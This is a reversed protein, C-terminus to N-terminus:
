AYASYGQRKKAPMALLWYYYDGRYDAVIFIIMPFFYNIIIIVPLIKLWYYYDAIIM